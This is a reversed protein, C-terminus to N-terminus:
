KRWGELSNIAILIQGGDGSAVALKALEISHTILRLAPQVNAQPMNEIARYRERLIVVRELEEMLKAMM